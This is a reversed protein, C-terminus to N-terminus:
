ENENLLNEANKISSNIKNQLDKVKAEEEDLWKKKEDTLEKGKMIEDSDFRGGFDQMWTMMFTHAGELDKKAQEYKLGAQTTDIKPELKQILNNITSMKPMVEDHIAMVQEMQTPKDDQKKEQKCSILLTTLVFTFAFLIKKM